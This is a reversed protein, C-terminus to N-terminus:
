SPLQFILIIISKAYHFCLFTEMGSTVGTVLFRGLVSSYALM